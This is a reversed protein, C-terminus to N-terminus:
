LCNYVVIIVVLSEWVLFPLSEQILYYCLGTDFVCYVWSLIQHYNVGRVCSFGTKSVPKNLLEM